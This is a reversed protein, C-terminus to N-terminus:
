LHEILDPNKKKIETNSNRSNFHCDKVITYVSRKM